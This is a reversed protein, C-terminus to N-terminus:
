SAIAAGPWRRAGDVALDTTGPDFLRYNAPNTVDAAADDGSPDLVPEDFVVGRRSVATSPGAAGCLM